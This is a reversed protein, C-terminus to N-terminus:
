SVKLGSKPWKSPSEEMFFAIKEFWNLNEGKEEQRKKISTQLAVRRGFPICGLLSSSVKKLCEKTDSSAYVNVKGKAILTAAEKYGVYDYSYQGLENTTRVCIQVALVKYCLNVKKSSRKITLYIDKIM